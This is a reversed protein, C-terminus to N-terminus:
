YNKLKLKLKSSNDGSLAKVKVGGAEVYGDATKRPDMNINKAEATMQKIADAKGQEYFHNAIADPNSAAFLSKHFNPADTLLKDENVYKNFVNLLDSQNEKVKNVDSVNFRYKKNGVNFNFGKFDNNFVKNTENQFHSTQKALLEEAQKQENNYRNFFDVAKQQEPLLKSGLKVEKYYQDKLGTLFSKANAIAEKRALNKRKITREEDIEEDYSFEDEMLFQIEDYSLHPKTQKYYEVLLTDDDTNDYDANLRVYDDLTGGTEQMFKVLDQINEPLNIEEKQEEVQEVKSEEQETAVPAEDNSTEQEDTIEELVPTEQVNADSEGAPKETEAQVEEVVEESAGSEDRVPIEDTSQEQVANEQQNQENIKNLDLKYMGDEKTSIGANELVTEEKEAMSKPEEAEVASVKIDEAM